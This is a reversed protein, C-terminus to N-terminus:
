VNFYTSAPLEEFTSKPFKLPWSLKCKVVLPYAAPKDYPEFSPRWNEQLVGRGLVRLGDRGQM